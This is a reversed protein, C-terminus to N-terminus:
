LPIDLHRIWELAEEYLRIAGRTEGLENRAVCVYEGFDEPGVQLLELVLRVKYPTEEAVTRPSPSRRPGLWATRARPNSELLCSLRVDSDLAAGVSQHPIWIM